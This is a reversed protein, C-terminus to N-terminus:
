NQEIKVCYISIVIELMNVRLLYIRGDEAMFAAHAPEYGEVDIRQKTQKRMGYYQHM